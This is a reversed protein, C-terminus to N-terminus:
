IHALVAETDGALRYPADRVVPLMCMDEFSLKLYLGRLVRAAIGHSVAIVSDDQGFANLWDALRTSISTYSEGGPARFYWSNHTGGHMREPWRAHIEARTCGEWDGLALEGIRADTGIETSTIGLVSSIIQATTQARQLPSAVIRFVRDGGHARLIQGARTSQRRGEETLPSDHRGQLRGDRNWETQGHLVVFM